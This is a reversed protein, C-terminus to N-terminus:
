LNDERYVYNCNCDALSPAKRDKDSLLPISVGWDIGIDPDDFRISQDYAPAYPLDTKYQVECDDELTLFGHAFGRPIWLERHLKADLTLSVWKRYNPSGKRIDVAVDLISGQTCRILKGQSAPGNQFHLGRLTGKCASYSHNDQVFEVNIGVEQMSAKSWSEFFWGREDGFVDPEIMLVGDLSTPVVKLSM